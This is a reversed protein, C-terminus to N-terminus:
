AGLTTDGALRGTGFAYVTRSRYTTGPRLVISPFEPHNPADPFHQTELCFGGRRAYAHGRKGRLSGDLFNGSYFQLGPETTYVDLTRGSMPELVHAAHALEAGGPARRLVFNHDFGGAHRIQEDPSDINAGIATPRRFDFPTGAVHRIAGTVILDADVPTFRDAEIMLVHDRIDAAAGASLDLYMHQTLNVITPRDTTASYDITLEGHESLLYDVRAHLTGPYGEEGDPSTRTFAVGAGNARPLAAANWVVKDFGRVGGHLHNVGDNTSLQHPQGDLSFRGLAIRNSCRGILAGFYPSNAVYEDLTDFGLVVDGDQGARDPARLATLTAGYTIAQFNFAGARLDYREIPTGDNLMGFPARSVSPAALETVRGNV